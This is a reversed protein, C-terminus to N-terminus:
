IYDVAIVDNLRKLYPKFVFDAAFEEEHCPSVRSRGRMHVCAGECGNM